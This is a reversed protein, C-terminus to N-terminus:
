PLVPWAASQLQGQRCLAAVTLPFTERRARPRLNDSALTSGQVAVRYRPCFLLSIRPRDLSVLTALSTEPLVSLV